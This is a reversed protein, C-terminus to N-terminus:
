WNPVIHWFNDTLKQRECMLDARASLYGRLRSRIADKIAEFDAVAPCAERAQKCLALIDGRIVKLDDGIEAIRNAASEKADYERADEAVSEAFSDGWRAADEKCDTHDFSICAAGDNYPDCYGYVFLPVSDRAPLQWVAGRMTSEMYNDCYWGTHRMSIIEDSFGVWRLGARNTDEVWRVHHNGHSEHPPNYASYRGTVYKLRFAERWDKAYKYARLKAMRATVPRTLEMHYASGRM